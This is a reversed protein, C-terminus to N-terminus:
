FFDQLWDMADGGEDISEDLQDKVFKNINKAALFAASGAAAANTVSSKGGGKSKSVQKLIELGDNAWKAFWGKGEKTVEVLDEILGQLEDKSFSNKIVGFAATPNSRCLNFIPYFRAEVHGYSEAADSWLEIAKKDKGKALFALGVNSKCNAVQYRYHEIVNHKDVASVLWLKDVRSKENEIWNDTKVICTEYDEIALDTKDQLLHQWIITALANPQGNQAAANLLKLGETKSGSELLKFGEENKLVDPNNFLKM